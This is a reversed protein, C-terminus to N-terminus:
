CIFSDIFFCEIHASRGFKRLEKKSEVFMIKQSRIISAFQLEIQMWLLDAPDADAVMGMIELTEKPMYRSFLGHKLAATNRESFQNKPNPNGSRKQQQKQKKPTADKKDITAVKEIKSADKKTPDRSWGERSKRSKLTGLKVDHKEALAALTIKTTEWEKRITDWNVM